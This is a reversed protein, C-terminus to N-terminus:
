LIDEDPNIPRRQHAATQVPRRPPPATANTPLKSVSENFMVGGIDDDEDKLLSQTNGNFDLHNDARVKTGPLCRELCALTAFSFFIILAWIADTQVRGFASKVDAEDVEGSVGITGNNALVSNVALLLWLCLIIRMM